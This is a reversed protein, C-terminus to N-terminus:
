KIKDNAFNNIYRLLSEKVSIPKFNYKKAKKLSILHNNVDSKEEIILPNKKFKQLFLKLISAVKIPSHSTLNLVVFKENLKKISNELFKSIIDIHIINGFNKKLNFIHIKKEKIIANALNSIFNNHSGDGVIGPLRLVLVKNLENRISWSKLMNECKIKSLGYNDDSSKKILNSKENIIKKNKLYVSMSSFFVINKIDNNTAFDLINKMMLINSNFLKNPNYRQPTEFAAHIIVDIELNIQIKKKLNQKYFIIKKIKPKKNGLAFIKFKKSLNKALNFGSFGNAGTILIKSIM